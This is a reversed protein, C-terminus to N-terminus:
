FDLALEIMYRRDEKPASDTGVEEGFSCLDIQFWALRAGFGATWYGQNAGMAWHGKWWNYMKWYLEMGLHSGKRPSWNEHGIDRIDASFHPDFVWWKPLDWKSGLDFRRGLKPPEGSDKSIFHFNKKFGYDLLNRGVLAFSPQMHKFFGESAPPRWYTALDLDGTLGENADATSFPSKGDAMEGASIAQGGYVGRLITVM